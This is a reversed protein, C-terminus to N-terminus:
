PKPGVPRYKPELTLICTLIWRISQHVSNSTMSAYDRRLLYFIAYIPIKEYFVWLWIRDVYNPSVTPTRRQISNYAGDFLLKWFKTGEPLRSGRASITRPYAITPFVGIACINSIRMTTYSLMNPVDLM